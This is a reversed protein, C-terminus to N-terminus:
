EAGMVGYLKRLAEREIQRVRERTVGVRGAIEKLTMTEGNEDDLGYRLRLIKAEREDIINLLEGLRALLDAQQMTEEPSLEKSNGASDNDGVLIDLSVQPHLSSTHITRKLIPWSDTPVGIEQAVEEITPPRGLQYTLESSVVRWKSIIESMYSPVRVSRVTSTLARRISQKIWWTGYTSFRCGMEPDFKEVARLLGVNGEAILDQLSLGLETFQKAISVVLRLNARILHERAAADGQHIRQGLEREEEPSLLPVENIEVLYTELCREASIAPRRFPTPAPPLPIPFHGYEPGRADVRTWM